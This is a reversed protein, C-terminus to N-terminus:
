KVEVVEGGRNIVAPATNPLLQSNQLNTISSGATLLQCFGNDGLTCGDLLLHCNGAVTLGSRGNGRCTVNTLVCDDVGDFANIGDLQFGQVTLDAIEIERCRYLTIGVAEGTSSLNYQYVSVGPEVRLYIQGEYLAWERPQLFSVPSRDGEVPRRVLPRDDIFLQQFASRQPRFRFVDGSVHQWCHPPVPTSGDLIAGNGIITFRNVAGGSHHSSILTISERYPQGADALIIRDGSDALRLAKAITRVPGGGDAFDPQAGLFTDDGTVNNVYLDKAWANAACGCLLCAWIVTRTM